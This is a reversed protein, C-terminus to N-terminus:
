RSNGETCSRLSEVLKQTKALGHRLSLQTGGPGIGHPGQWTFALWVDDDVVFALKLGDHDTTADLLRHAADPKYEFQISMDFDDGAVKIESIDATTTIADRRVHLVGTGLKAVRTDSSAGPEVLTLEMRPCSPTATALSLTEALVPTPPQETILAGRPGTGSVYQGGKTDDRLPHIVLSVEDGAVLAGPQWGARALYDLSNMEINWEESRGEDGNVRVLISAHPNTWRFEEVVGHLTLSRSQDVAASSHHASVGMPMVALTLTLAAIVGLTKSAV